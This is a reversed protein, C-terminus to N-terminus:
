GPPGRGARGPSGDHAFCGGEDPLYCAGELADAVDAFAPVRGFSGPDGTGLDVTILACARVALAYDGAQAADVLRQCGFAAQAQQAVQARLMDLQQLRLHDSVAQGVGGDAVLQRGPAFEAVREVGSAPVLERRVLQNRGFEVHAEALAGRAAAVTVVLGDREDCVDLAGVGTPLHQAAHGPEDGGGAQAVLLGCPQALSFQIAGGAVHSDVGAVGLAPAWAGDAQGVPLHFGREAVGEVGDGRAAVPEPQVAGRETTLELVGHTIGAVGEFDLPPADVTQTSQECLRVQSLTDGGSEVFVAGAVFEGPQEPVPPAPDREAVASFEALGAGAADRLFAARAHEGRAAACDAQYVMLRRWPDDAPCGPLCIAGGRADGSPAGSSVPIRPSALEWRRAEPGAQPAAPQPQPQEFLAFLPPPAPRRRQQEAQRQEVQELPQLEEMERAMATLRRCQGPSNSKKAKGLLAFYKCRREPDAPPGYRSVPAVDEVQARAVVQAILKDLEPDRAPSLAAAQPQEPWPVGGQTLDHRPDYCAGGPVFYAAGAQVVPGGDDVASQPEPEPQSQPESEVHVVKASLPEEDPAGPPAVHETRIGTGYIANTCASNRCPPPENAADQQAGREPEGEQTGERWENTLRRRERDLDRLYRPNYEHGTRRRIEASLREPSAGEGIRRRVEFVTVIGKGSRGHTQTKLYERLATDNTWGDQRPTPPPQETPPASAGGGGGNNSQPANGRDPRGEIGNLRRLAEGQNLKEAMCVLGFADMARRAAPCNSHGSKCKCLMKGGYTFVALSAHQDDHWPCFYLDRATKTGGYREILDTLVHEANFRAINMNGPETRIEVAARAPPPPPPSPLATSPNNQWAALVRALAGTPDADISWITNDLALIGFEGTHTHRGFPLRSRGGHPRIEIVVRGGPGEACIAGQDNIHAPAEAVEAAVILAVERGLQRLRDADVLEAWPVWVWGRQEPEPEDARPHLTGFAWLGRRHLERMISEVTAYGGADVDFPLMRAHGDVAAPVAITRAGALHRAIDSVTPPVAKGGSKVDTYKEAADQSNMVAYSRPQHALFLAAFQRAHDAITNSPM